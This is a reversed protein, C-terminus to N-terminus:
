ICLLKEVYRLLLNVGSSINVFTLLFELYFMKGIPASNQASCGSVHVSMELFQLSNGEFVPM